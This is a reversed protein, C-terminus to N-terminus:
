MQQAAIRRKADIRGIANRIDGVLDAYAINYDTRWRGIFGHTNGLYTRVTVPVDAMLMKRAFERDIYSQSDGDCTYLLTEPLGRMEEEKAFYPSILPDEEMFPDDVWLYSMIRSRMLSDEVSGKPNPGEGPDRAFNTEPYIMVNLAISFAHSQKALLCVSFALCGGSSDGMVMIKGPDIELEEAHDHVWKACAYADHLGVPYGAESTHTYDADVVLIGCEYALRRCISTHVLTHPYCYGSGNYYILVAGNKERGKPDVLWLKTTGDPTEIVKETQTTNEEYVRYSEPPITAAKPQANVMFQYLLKRTQETM